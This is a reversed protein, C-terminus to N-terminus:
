DLASRALCMLWCRRDRDRPLLNGPKAQAVLLPALQRDLDRPLLLRLRSWMGPFARELRLALELLGRERVNRLGDPLGDSWDSLPQTLAVSLCWRRRAPALGALEEWRQRRAALAGGFLEAAHQLREGDLCMADQWQLDAQDPIHALVNAGACWHRYVDRCALVGDCADPLAPGGYLWPAFWWQIFDDSLSPEPM